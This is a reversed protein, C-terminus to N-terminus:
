KARLWSSTPLMHTWPPFTEDREDKIPITPNSSRSLLRIYRMYVHLVIVENHDSPTKREATCTGLKREDKMRENMVGSGHKVAAGHMFGIM